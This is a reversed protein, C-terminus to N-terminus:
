ARQFAATRRAFITLLALSAGMLALTVGADPADQHGYGTGGGFWVLQNQAAGSSDSLNLVGVDYLSYTATTLAADAASLSGGFESLADAYFANNGTTPTTFKGDGYVAEGMLAWIASQLLGADATRTAGGTYSYGSLTGQAFEGYLWAAGATLPLGNQPSGVTALSAAYYSYTNGPHFDVSTQVCFTQFGQGHGNITEVVESGAYLYPAILSPVSITTFEGGVDYSYANQYLQLTGTVSPQAMVAPSLFGGALVIGAFGIIKLKIM